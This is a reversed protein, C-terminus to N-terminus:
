RFRYGDTSSFGSLEGLYRFRYGDISLYGGLEGLYRFRYEPFFITNM